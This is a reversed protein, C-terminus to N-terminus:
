DVSVLFEHGGTCDPYVPSVDIMISATQPASKVMQADYLDRGWPADIVLTYHGDPLAGFDFAGNKDAKTSKVLRRGNEDAIPWRYEYLTLKAGAVAVRQRMWGWIHRPDHSAVGVVTGRLRTVQHFYDVPFSCAFTSPALVAFALALLLLAPSWIRTM